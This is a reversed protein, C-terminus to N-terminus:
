VAATEQAQENKAHLAATREYLEQFMAATDRFSFQSLVSNGRDILDHRLQPESLISNMLEALEAPSDPDFYLAGDRAVEPITTANSCIVPLRAHFAELIPLGFGEFKSAYIMATAASFIAQLERPAVFGLFHVQESVGLELALKDLVPRHETSSGTFFVHPARGHDRKLIQLARFIIEHNKHAWTAAPYFFFQSPLSLRNTTTELEEASPSEYADFVSGWPIVVVKEKAIGYQRVVDQRTWEAQVCVYSAQACFARYLRERQAFDSKSFFQPYHLHQLDHPQYISPLKTLYAVQTVFHVVDFNQSEVFGDSVPAYATRDCYQHYIYRLPAIHRLVNKVTSIPPEPIGALRCPGGIYPALWQRLSERVIFTYEQNVANSDSLARALALVATGVGQRSDTIRCDIAIRLKRAM